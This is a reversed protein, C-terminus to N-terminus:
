EITVPPHSPVPSPTSPVCVKGSNDKFPLKWTSKKTPNGVVLFAEAPLTRRVIDKSPLDSFQLTTPDDLEVELEEASPQELAVDDQPSSAHADCGEVGKQAPPPDADGSCSTTLQVGELSGECSPTEVGDVCSTAVVEVGLDSGM